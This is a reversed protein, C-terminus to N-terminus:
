PKLRSPLAQPYNSQVQTWWSLGQSPEDGTQSLPKVDKFLELQPVTVVGWLHAPTSM